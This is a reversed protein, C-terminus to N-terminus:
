ANRKTMVRIGGRADARKFALYHDESGFEAQLDQSTAYETNWLAEGSLAPKQEQPTEAAAGNAPEPRLGKMKAEDADLSALMQARSAKEAAVIALALDGASKSTDAKYAAVLAEHGPLAADDIAAIRSREAEAGEARFGAVLDPYHASLFAADVKIETEAVDTLGAAAAVAAMM